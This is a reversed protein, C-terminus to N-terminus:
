EESITLASALCAVDEFSKSVAGFRDPTQWRCKGRIFNVIDDIEDPIKYWHGLGQYPRWEIDFGLKTMTESAEEGFAVKLKEDDTGHGLFVPLPKDQDESTEEWQLLDRVYKRGATARNNEPTESMHAEMEDQFPLYGSMGVCGSISGGLAITCILSMACGNSLGGIIINSRPIGAQCEQAILTLVERFSERLGPLKKDNRLSRDEMSAVDFWQTIVARKFASSRRWRATPFIFRARPFLSALTRGDTTKGKDLLERGFKEGSSGMGHLFIMSHTHQKAPEVVFPPPPPADVKRRSTPTAQQEM